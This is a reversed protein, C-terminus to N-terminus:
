EPHSSETKAKEARGVSPDSANLESNPARDPAVVSNDPHISNFSDNNVGQNADTGRQFDSSSGQNPYDRDFRDRYHNPSVSGTDPPTGMRHLQEAGHPIEMYSNPTVRDPATGMRNLQEAGHPIELESRPMSMSSGATGSEYGRGSTGYDTTSCGVAAGLAAIVISVCIKKM